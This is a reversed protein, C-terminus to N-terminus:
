EPKWEDLPTLSNWDPMTDGGFGVGLVSSCDVVGERINLFWEDGRKVYLDPHHNAVNQKEQATLHSLGFGYHHGNRETHSIDLVSLADFDQHLPVIPMNSLDEGSIFAERGTTDAFHFCLARNLISKFVGKCNKHSTGSYGIAFADKFSDVTGDAEDILLPKLASIKRITAATQPDHTLQRTLPQEIFATHQFLGVHRKELETVFRYFEDIDKYAENGDLTITPQEAKVVAETWIRNLRALDAEIDGSIKVKFYRLGDRKVYEELTEPEGDGIRKELDGSSIPDALGVTHRIFFRSRQHLPLIRQLDFGSLEPHIAGPDIGLQGDRVMEFFPKGEARCVADIVAREFLASAYSASLAEHDEAKAHAMIEGHSTKWLSFPSDFNAGNNLYVAGAKKVLSILATLKEEPTRDTRKDLWGFSPRDGSRGVVTKTEGDVKLKLRVMFIARPRRSKASITRGVTFSMRDQPMERVFLDISQIAYSM